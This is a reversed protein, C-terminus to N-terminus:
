VQLGVVVACPCVSRQVKCMHLLVCLPVSSFFAVTLLTNTRDSSIVNLLFLVYFLCLLSDNFEDAVEFVCGAETLM